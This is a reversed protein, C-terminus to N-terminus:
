ATTVNRNTGRKLLVFAKGIRAFRLQYEDILYPRYGPCVCDVYAWDVLQERRKELKVIARETIPRMANNMM